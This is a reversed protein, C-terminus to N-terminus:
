EKINFIIENFDSIAQFNIRDANVEFSKDLFDTVRKKFEAFENINVPYEVRLMAGPLDQLYVGVISLSQMNSGNIFDRGEIFEFDTLKVPLNRYYIAAKVKYSKESRTRNVKKQGSGISPFLLNMNSTLVDINEENKQKDFIPSIKECLVLRPESWLDSKNQLEDNATIRLRYKGSINKNRIMGLKFKFHSFSIEKNGNITKVVNWSTDNEAMYLSAQWRVWNSEGDNVSLSFPIPCYRNEQKIVMKSTDFEFYIEPGISDNLRSLVRFPVFRPHSQNGAKDTIILRALYKDNALFEGGPLTGNFSITDEFLKGKIRIERSFLIKTTDEQPCLSFNLKDLGANEDKARVNIILHDPENRGSFLVPGGIRSVTIDPKKKDRYVIQPNMVAQSPAYDRFNIRIGMSHKLNSEPLPSDDTRIGYALDINVSNINFNFGIFSGIENYFLRKYELGLNFGSLLDVDANIFGGFVNNFQYDESGILGGEISLFEEENLWHYSLRASRLDGDNVNSSFQSRILNGVYVGISSYGNLIFISSFDVALGQIDISSRNDSFWQYQNLKLNSAVIWRHMLRNTYGLQISNITFISKGLNEAAYQAYIFSFGGYSYSPSFVQLSSTQMQGDTFQNYPIYVSLNTEFSRNFFSQALSSNAFRVKGVRATSTSIALQEPSLIMYDQANLFSGPAILIL